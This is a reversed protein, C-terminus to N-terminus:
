HPKVASRSLLRAPDGRAPLIGLIEIRDAAVRYLIVYPFPHLMARRVDNRVREYAEPFLAIRRKVRDVTRLFRPAVDVGQQGYWTCVADVDALAQKSAVVRLTM